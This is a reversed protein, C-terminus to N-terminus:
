ALHFEPQQFLPANLSLEFDERKKARYVKQTNFRMLLGGSNLVGEQQLASKEEFLFDVEPSEIIEEISMYSTDKYRVVAQSLKTKGCTVQLPFAFPQIATILRGDKTRGAGHSMCGVRGTTSKSDILIELNPTHTVTEFSTVYYINHGDSNPHLIYKEGEELTTLEMESLDSETVDEIIVDSKAIQTGVRLDFGATGLQGPAPEPEISLSTFGEIAQLLSPPIYGRISSSDPMMSHHEPAKLTGRTYIMGVLSRALTKISIERSKQYSLVM